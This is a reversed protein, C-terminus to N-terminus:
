ATGGVNRRGAMIDSYSMRVKHIVGQRPPGKQNPPTIGQVSAACAAYVLADFWHNDPRQPKITWEQLKRGHGATEQFTEATLHAAFLAHRDPSDGFLTMAGPDGPATMLASHVFTKWYNTDLAVHPFERTGQTPPMYWHGFPDRRFKGKLTSMPRTGARIGVGKSLMMTAGGVKHKVAAIVGPWKGSDVLARGVRVLGGGARPYDIALARAMFDELGAQITGEIGRNPYMTQLNRQSEAIERLTFAQRQQRPWVGYDIVYGTYDMQWGVVVYWLSSQQVDVGMTLETCDLPVEGQKRGSFRMQCAAATLYGASGDHTLPENQFEASFGAPGYEYFSHMAAQVASLNRKDDLRHPNDVVAGCDMCTAKRPCNVCKSVDDDLTRGQDCMRAHYFATPEAFSQDANMAQNRLERYEEWLAKNTPWSYLRKTREGRYNPYVRRDLLQDALDGPQIVTCPILIAVQADPGALGQVAQNIVQLRYTTQGAPGQSRASEQTQPDDCMALTPRIIAGDPMAVWAGLFQSELSSAEIVSRSAISGPIEPLVIRDKGWGINTKVGRYRQGRCKRSENDLKCLPFCVEPFDAAILKNKTLAEKFWGLADKGQKNVAGIFMSFRHRGSLTAWLIAARCLSSKGSGRPMAVALKDHDIVVREIKAIVKLQDKSWPLYFIEQFYTKCFPEFHEVCRARREPNACAPIDGIEQTLITREAQASLRRVNEAAMMKQKHAESKRKPGLRGSSVKRRKVAPKQRKPKRRKPKM